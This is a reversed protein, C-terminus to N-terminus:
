GGVVFEWRSRISEKVRESADVDVDASGGGARRERVALADLYYDFRNADGLRDIRVVGTVLLSDPPGVAEVLDDWLYVDIRRATGAWDRVDEPEALAVRQVDVFTSQDRDIVLSDPSTCAGCRGPDPLEVGRPHIRREWGCTPCVFVAETTAAAAADVARVIGEVTVLAGVHRSRVSRLSLQSPLNWLRVNVRDVDDHLLRLTEAGRRLVDDPNALLAALLDPDFRHLDIVDVYLSREEPYREVFAEVAAAAPGDFFSRWRAEEPAAVTM